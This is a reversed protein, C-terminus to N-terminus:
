ASTPARREPASRRRHPRGVGIQQLHRVLGVGAEGVLRDRREALERGPEPQELQEVSRRQRELIDGHLQQRPEVLVRQGGLALRKVTTQAVEPSVPPAATSASERRSGDADTTRKGSPLILSTWRRKM